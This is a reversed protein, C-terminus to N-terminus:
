FPKDRRDSVSHIAGAALEKGTGSEGSIFVTVSSEGALRLRRFMEQMPLSSGVLRDFAIRQRTQEELLTVREHAEVFDTLDTFCGVAGAVQGTEDM